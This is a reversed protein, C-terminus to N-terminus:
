SVTGLPVWTYYPNRGGSNYTGGAGSYPVARLWYNTTRPGHYPFNYQTAKLQANPPTPPNDFGSTGGSSLDGATNLTYNVLEAQQTTVVVGAGPAPVNNNATWVYDILIKDLYPTGATWTATGSYM